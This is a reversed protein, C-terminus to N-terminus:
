QDSILRKIEDIKARAADEGLHFCEERENMRDPRIHAIEPIIVVDAKHNQTDSTARLLTMASNFLMGLATQPVRRFGAGSSLLDVAIVVDAGMELVADIPVPAVLGGDVLVRHQEDKIPTFVAPVACSARIASILDGSKIRVEKGSILECAVATFPTPLDEFTAIRLHRRIFKAMPANSLLAQPSFSPRAVHRWRVERAMAEIEAATMGAALAGGVFSGVSTGAIYDPKIGHEALVKLVGVHAYGRAGGGSLVLGIKKRIM